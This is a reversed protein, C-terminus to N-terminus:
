GSKRPPFKGRYGAVSVVTTRAALVDPGISYFEEAWCLCANTYMTSKEPMAGSLELIDAYGRVVGRPQTKRTHTETAVRCEINLVQYCAGRWHVTWVAVGMKASTPKNYHLFFRYHKYRLSGNKNIAVSKM